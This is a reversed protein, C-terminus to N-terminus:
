FLSMMFDIFTPLFTQWLSHVKLFRELATTLVYIFKTQAGTNHVQKFLLRNRLDYKYTKNLVDIITKM